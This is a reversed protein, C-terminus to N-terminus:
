GMGTVHRLVFALAVFGAAFALGNWDLEAAKLMRVLRALVLWGLLVLLAILVFRVM